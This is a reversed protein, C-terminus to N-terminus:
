GALADQHYRVFSFALGNASRHRERAVETWAPGLAPAHADGEFAAEIETVVASTARPLALAYVEAGGTVWIRADAACQALAEDLTAVRTAGEARWGAQRTLVLNQRGPLPRFRPPLSDWTKRGMLVPCGMTTAKFHAMDEPLRWPLANDKGIVGNAAQAWILHLTAM